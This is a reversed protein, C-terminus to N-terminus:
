NVVKTVFGSFNNQVGVACNRIKDLEKEVARDYRIYNFCRLVFFFMNEVFNKFKRSGPTKINVHIAHLYESLPKVNSIVFITFM